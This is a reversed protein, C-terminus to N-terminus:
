GDLIQILLGYTYAVGHDTKWWSASKMETVVFDYLLDFNEQTPETMRDGLNNRLSEMFTPKM